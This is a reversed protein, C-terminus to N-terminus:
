LSRIAERIEGAKEPSVLASIIEFGFEQAVGMGAATIIRGDRIVKGGVTAGTLYEEFGPYCTARKGNLYGRKGLVLPAACIACLYSGKAAALELAREVTPSADLNTTGPMGGPLIVAEPAFKGNLYGTFASETLDATVTIGHSGTVTPSEDWLNCASVGINALRSMLINTKAERVAVTVVKLGARRLLDLPALAEVEEFGPALFMVIM